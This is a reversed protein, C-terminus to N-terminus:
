TRNKEGQNQEDGHNSGLRRQRWGEMRVRQSRNDSPALQADSRPEGRNRSNPWSKPATVQVRRNLSPVESGDHFQFLHVRNGVDFLDSIGDIHRKESCLHRRRNLDFNATRIALRRGFRELFRSDVQIILLAQLRGKSTRIRREQSM